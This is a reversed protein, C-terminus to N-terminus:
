NSLRDTIQSLAESIITLDLLGINELGSATILGEFIREKRVYIRARSLAQVARKEFTSAMDAYENADQPDHNFGSAGPVKGTGALSSSLVIHVADLTDFLSRSFGTNDVYHELPQRSSVIVWPPTFPHQTEFIRLLKDHLCVPLSDIHDLYFVQNRPRALALALAAMSSTRQRDSASAEVRSNLKRCDFKFYNANEHPFRRFILRSLAEKGADYDGSIRIPLATQALRGILEWLM